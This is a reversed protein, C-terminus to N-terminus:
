QKVACWSAHGNRPVPAAHHLLGAKFESYGCTCATEAPLAALVAPRDCANCLALTRYSTGGCSLCPTALEADLAAAAHRLLM